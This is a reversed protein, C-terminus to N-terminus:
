ESASMAAERCRETDREREDGTTVTAERTGM